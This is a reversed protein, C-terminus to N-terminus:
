YYVKADSRKLFNKLRNHIKLKKKNEKLRTVPLKAKSM